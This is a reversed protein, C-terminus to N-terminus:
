TNYSHAGGIRASSCLMVKRETQRSSTPEANPKSKTQKKVWAQGIFAQGKFGVTFASRGAPDVLRTMYM